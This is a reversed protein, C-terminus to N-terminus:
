PGSAGPWSCCVARSSGYGGRAGTDLGRRSPPPGFLGLAVSQPTGTWQVPKEEHNPFCSPVYSELLGHLLGCLKRCFESRTLLSRVTCPPFSM